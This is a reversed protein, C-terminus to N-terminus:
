GLQELMAAAGSVTAESRETELNVAKVTGDEVIMSYRRSRVGLGGASIDVDMGLAKTFAADWDAVFTIKGMGGTANAWAKMVHHDNVSICLIEDVGKALITDRNELFGPLHNNSCTPTFAGPLGFVVVRRGDFMKGSEIDSPGEDGIVRLKAAPIKDGVGITM